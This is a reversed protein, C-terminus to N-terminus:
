TNSQLVALAPTLYNNSKDPLHAVLEYNELGDEPTYEWCVEFTKNRATPDHLAKLCVDAVDACAVPQTIRNGQDFVLAKYGGAEEVLAGPRVITYGLGSSRLLSEGKRKATVVRDRVSEDFSWESRQAGGCSVLVFDTENGGPLAKIWDIELKFRNAANDYMGPTAVQEMAKKSPEFQIGIAAIDSPELINEEPSEDSIKQPSFLTWPIRVTSFGIQSKFRYQFVRGDEVELLASYTQGDGMIRMVVGDSTAFYAQRDDDLDAGVIAYANRSYVAGDFVLHNDDNIYADAIDRAKSLAKRRTQAYYGSGELDEEDPGCHMIDWADQDEEKGFDAVSRKATPAAMGVKRYAANRMDQFARSVMAVGDADVRNLDSSLTSRAAACFIVKDVGEVAKRCAKYDGLDGEIVEVSQPISDMMDGSDEGRRRVLAKVSYGRILLKRLLVRGVRGTAGVVLVTSEEAQPSDFVEPLLEDDYDVSARSPGGIRQLQSWVDDFVKRSRRGMSIPNLDDLKLNEGDEAVVSDFAKRSKRGLAIPNFDELTVPKAVDRKDRARRRRRGSFASGTRAVVEEEQTSESPPEETGGGASADDDEAASCVVFSKNTVVNVFRSSRYGANHSRASGPFSAPRRGVHTAHVTTGAVNALYM